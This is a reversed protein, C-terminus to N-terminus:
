LKPSTFSLRQSEEWDVASKPQLHCKQIDWSWIFVLPGIWCSDPGPRIESQFFMFWSVILRIMVMTSETWETRTPSLFNKAGSQVLNGSNTSRLREWKMNESSKQLTESNVGDPVVFNVEEVCTRLCRKIRSKNQKRRTWRGAGFTSKSVWVLM